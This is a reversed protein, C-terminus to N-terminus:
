DFHSSGIKKQCGAVMYILLLFIHFVRNDMNYNTILSIILLLIVSVIIEARRSMMIPIVLLIAYLISGLIGSEWYFKLFTNHTAGGFEDVLMSSGPGSGFLPSADAFYSQALDFREDSTDTYYSIDSLNEIRASTTLNQLSAVNPIDQLAIFGIIGLAMAFLSFNVNRTRHVKLWIIVAALGIAIVVGGRSLTMLIGAIAVAGTVLFRRSTAKDCELLLTISFLMALVHATGNPNQPLGAPRTLLNSFTGPSVLDIVLTAVIIYISFRVGANLVNEFRREKGSIALIFIASFFLLFYRSITVLALAIDDALVTCVLSWAFLLVFLRLPLRSFRFHSARNYVAFYVLSATAIFAIGVHLGMSSFGNRAAYIDAGSGILVVGIFLLSRIIFNM